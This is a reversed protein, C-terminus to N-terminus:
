PGSTRLDRLLRECDPSSREGRVRARICQYLRTREDDPMKLIRERNRESRAIEEDLAKQARDRELIKGQIVGREHAQNVRWLHVGYLGGIGVVVALLICVKVMTPLALFSM